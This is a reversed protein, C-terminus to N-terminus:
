GGARSAGQSCVNPASEKKQRQGVRLFYIGSDCGSSCAPSCVDCGGHPLALASITVSPDSRYDPKVSTDSKEVRFSMHFTLSRNEWFAISLRAASPKPTPLVRPTTRTSFYPDPASNRLSASPSYWIVTCGVMM